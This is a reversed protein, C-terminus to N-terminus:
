LALVLWVALLLQCAMVAWGFNCFDKCAGGPDWASLVQCYFRGLRETKYATHM